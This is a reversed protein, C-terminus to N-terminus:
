LMKVTDKLNRDARLPSNEDKNKALTKGRERKKILRALFKSM